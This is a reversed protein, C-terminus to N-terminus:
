HLVVVCWYSQLEWCDVLSWRWHEISCWCKMVMLVSSEATLVVTIWCLPVTWCGYIWMWWSCQKSTYRGLLYTYSRLDVVARYHLIPPPEIYICPKGNVPKKPSHPSHFLLFPDTDLAIPLYPLGVLQPFCWCQVRALLHIPTHHLTTYHLAGCPNLVRCQERVPWLVSTSTRFQLNCDRFFMSQWMLSMWMLM